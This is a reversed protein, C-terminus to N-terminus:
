LCCIKFLVFVFVTCIWVYNRNGKGQTSASPVMITVIFLSVFALSIMTHRPSFCIHYATKGARGKKFGGVCCVGKSMSSAVQTHQVWLYACLQLSSYVNGKM